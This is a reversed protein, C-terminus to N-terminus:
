SLRAVARGMEGLLGHVDRLLKQFSPCRERALRLDFGEAFAPQDDTPLYRKGEMNATLREKAGRISEPNEPTAADLRIGRKGRLSEKAGLFWAEFERQALVVSVPLDPLVSQCRRLLEPALRAPCDEDADLIVLVAAIRFTDSRGRDAVAQRVAKEMEGTRAIRNRHVRFPRPLQVDYAQCEHFIRRLLIPVALVEGQGEVITVLADKM